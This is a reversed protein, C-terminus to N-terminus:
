ILDVLFIRICFFFIFQVIRIKLFSRNMQIFIKVPIFLFIMVVVSSRISCDTNKCLCIIDIKCAQHVSTERFFLIFNGNVTHMSVIDPYFDAILDCDSFFFILDNTQDCIDVIGCQM